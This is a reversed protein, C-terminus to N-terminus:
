LRGRVVWSTSSSCSRQSVSWCRLSHAEPIKVCMGWKVLVGIEEFVAPPPSIQPGNRVFEKRKDAHEGALYQAKARAHVEESPLRTCKDVNFNQVVPVMEPALYIPDM